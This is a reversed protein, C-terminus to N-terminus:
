SKDTHPQESRACRRHDGRSASWLLKCHALRQLTNPYNIKGMVLRVRGTLLHQGPEAGVHDLDLPRRVTISRAAQPIHVVRVDVAEKKKQEVAVLAAEHEIQLGIFALFDRASQDLFAIDDSFIE